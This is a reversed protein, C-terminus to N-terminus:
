ASEQRVERPYVGKTEEEVKELHNPRVLLEGCEEHFSWPMWPELPARMSEDSGNTEALELWYGLFIL